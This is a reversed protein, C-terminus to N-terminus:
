WVHSLTLLLIRRDALYTDLAQQGELGLALRHRYATHRDAGHWLNWRAGVGIRLDHSLDGHRLLGNAQLRAYPEVTRGEGTRFHRGAQYDVTLATDSRRLYHAADVYLIHSWWGNGVPRWDRGTETSDLPAASMRLLTEDRMGGELARQHEASVYFVHREFPKWRLGLGLTLGDDPALRGDFSGAFLRAYPALADGDPRGLAHGLRYQVEVQAYSRYAGGPIASSTSVADGLTLDSAVVWRRGLDENLRALRFVRQPEAAADLLDIAARALERAREPRVLRRNVEALDEAIPAQDKHELRYAELHPEADRPRDAAVYAYGLAARVALDSPALVHARELSRVAGEVDGDSRQLRAQRALYRADERVALAKRLAEREEPGGPTATLARLWWYGDGAVFGRAAHADLWPVARAPEGAAVATNGAAILDDASLADVPLGSWAALSARADGLAFEAHALARRADIGAGADVARRWADRARLPATPALCEAVRQWASARAAPPHAHALAELSECDGLAALVDFSRATRAFDGDASLRLRRRDAADARAPREALLMALRAAARPQRSTSEQWRDLLLRAAHDGEGAEVLRYTVRDLREPDMPSAAVLETAIAQAASRDGTRLADTLRQEAALAITIDSAPLKSARGAAGSRGPARDARADTTREPAAPVPRAARVDVARAMAPARPVPTDTPPKAAPRVAAFRPDAPTLRRQRAVVREADAARGARRYAEALHLATLPSAPAHERAREFAAVAERHDGRRQAAFGRQLHPYTVFREYDSLGDVPDAASAPQVALALMMALALRRM